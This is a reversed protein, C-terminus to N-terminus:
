ASWEFSGSALYQLLCLKVAGFQPLCNKGVRQSAVPFRKLSPEFPCRPRLEVSGFILGSNGTELTRLRSSSELAKDNTLIIIGTRQKEQPLAHEGNVLKREDSIVKYTM